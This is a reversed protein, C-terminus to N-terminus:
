ENGPELPITVELKTGNQGSTIQLEGNLNSVQDRITRLGIGNSLDRRNADFGTGDDEICMRIRGASEELSLSLRTAGAHRIANSLSEQAIRYLAVRVAQSPESSLAPPLNLSGQFRESIGSENWLKQLADLLGLAQWDLPHHKHSVARVEMSAERVLRAIRELYGRVEAPLESARREILEVHVNIASLLQGAGSHLERAMRAREREVQASIIPGPNRRGRDLRSDLAQQMRLLRFYSQLARNQLVLLQHSATELYDVSRERVEASLVVRGASRIVCSLRVPVASKRRRRFVGALTESTQCEELYHRLAPLEPFVEMLNAAEGLREHAQSSM